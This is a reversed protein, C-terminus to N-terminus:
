AKPALKTRALENVLKGDARGGTKALAIKMVKGIDAATTAGSEVVADAVIKEVEARDMQQPLYFSLFGIETKEKAALEPRNGKTFAEISDHRQKIMTGIIKLIEADEVPKRGDVERQKIASALLRLSDRKETDGSKMAAIVDKNVTDKLSM